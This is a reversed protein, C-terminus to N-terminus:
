IVAQCQNPPLANYLAIIAQNLSLYYIRQRGLNNNTKIIAQQRILALGNALDISAEQKNLM